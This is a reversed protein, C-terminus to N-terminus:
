SANRRRRETARGAARADEALGDLVRRVEEFRGSEAPGGSFGLPVVLRGDHRRRAQPHGDLFGALDPETRFGVLLGKPGIDLEEVGSRRCAQKLGAVRLLTAVEAPPPGFREALAASFAEAEGGDGLRAIARYLSLRLGLDPVYSEPISVPLDLNIRPTWFAEIGDRGESQERVAQVARRFLDQFLEAGVERLHGSQEEGALNGAGRLDLDAQALEAGAGPRGHAAVRALREAAEDSVPRGAETTLLCVARIAGRGVRGRLQHLQALGFMDARHVVLTNATPINLGSEIINTALLIDAGGEAFGTVVEDMEDPKMRGHATAVRMDPVMEALRRGVRELDSVRPCVYFSQGGRRHERVLADRVTGPEYELVRTAVARREVPPTTVISLDRLGAFAMQLTRPIPTASMTLVHVGAALAKLTEKQAVGFRQEEDVVLLGLDAFRVGKGLLAHTGVAIRARGERLAKRAQALAGGSGARMVEAIEIGFGEFRSRFDRAHQRALPLTPAIVAVQRGAAAVCFAARLAVETKGFGVDAVLLRDMPRGAALDALVADIADSQGETETYPFRDVFRRYSAPPRIPEVRVAQRRAATAALARAQEMVGAAVRGLREAWTESGLKDLSAPMGGPGYRWLLDLNEVPVLLRDNGRYVLRVCAHAVGGADVEELGDCLGIGHDAHVVLDGPALASATAAAMPDAGEGAGTGAPEAEERGALDPGAAVVLDPAVFGAPLPLVAACVAEGPDFRAVAPVPRGAARQLRRLRERRRATLLVPVGRRGAEEIHAALAGEGSLDPGARGGADEQGPEPEGPLLVAPARSELARRWEDEDLFLEEPPLPRYTPLHARQGVRAMAERGEYAARIQASRELCQEEASGDLTLAADPLWDFLTEAGGLFLPLWHEMGAHRRGAAIAAALPDNGEEQGFRRRYAALFREGSRGDLVVESLPPLDVADEIRDGSIRLGVPGDAGPPFVEMVDDTRRFDGPSRVEEVPGYGAGLLRDELEDADIAGPEARLHQEAFATRPPLRRLLGLPDTLVLRPGAAPVLLRELTAARVASVAPSPSGHEYPLRDWSPLALIEVGPALAPAFFRACRVMHDLRLRDAAVHLLGSPGAEQALRLLRVADYGPPLGAIIRRAPRAADTEMHM